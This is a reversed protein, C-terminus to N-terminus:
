ARRLLRISELETSHCADRGHLTDTKLFIEMAPAFIRRLLSGQLELLM